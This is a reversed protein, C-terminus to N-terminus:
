DNTPELGIPMGQADLAWTIKRSKPGDKKVGSNESRNPVHMRKAELAKRRADMVELVKDTRSARSTGTFNVFGQVGIEDGILRLTERHEVPGFELKMLRLHHNLSDAKYAKAM